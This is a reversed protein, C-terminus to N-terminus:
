GRAPGPGPEATRLADGAMFGRQTMEFSAMAELLFIGGKRVLEHAERPDRATELVDLLVQHHVRVVTLLGLEATMARRGLEYASSLGQEDSRALYALFAPTYDRAFPQVDETM